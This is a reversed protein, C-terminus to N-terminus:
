EDTDGGLLYITDITIKKAVNMIDKKIVSSIKEKREEQSDCGLFVKSNYYSLIQSPYDSSQEIISIYSRIAKDLDDDLFEGKEMKKMQKKILEMVKEKNKKAIGSTIILLNDAKNFVSNIYYCLSYEERVVKFLNSNSGGGLIMNYLWMVYDREFDTLGSTKCGVCLKSQSLNDSEEFEKIKNNENQHEIVINNNSRRFVPFHFYEDIVKETEDYNIDGLIFVDVMSSRIFKKYFDVLNSANIKDLDEQYGYTHISYPQNEGMKELMKVISYKRPNEKISDIHVKAKNMTVNFAADDFKNNTINPNFLIDSLFKMTQKFMGSESYKEDLMSLVIDTNFYSGTRYNNAYINVSYLDQLKLAIERKTKYEKTSHLLISSLVNVITTEEKKIKRRFIFQVTITKFTDTKIMHLHLPGIIKKKYEM